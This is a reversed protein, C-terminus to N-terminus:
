MPAVAPTARAALFMAVPVAKGYHWGQMLTIGQERLFGAQAATEVGEAVTDIGFRRGISIMVQVIAADDGDETVDRVFARDIKLEHIPLKKLYLLSSYGTGFDDISFRFGHAALRAMRLAGVDIDDLLVGETMELTLDSARAGHHAVLALLDDAFGPDRFQRPSVNVALALPTGARRQAAALAAAQDLVRRGIALIQGSDEAVPIFDAPSVNGRLPHQWRLLAEAGALRGDPHWKGQLQISFQNRELAQRLDRELAFRQAVLQQMDPQYLRLGGRGAAKAAYMATDAERVLDDATETDNKPFLTIGISAGLRFEVGDIVFPQMMTALLKVGVLEAGAAAAVPEAAVDPLLVMMEDGGMRALTDEARLLASLRQGAAILVRDGVAHGYVDNIRKFHDLDVFLLAGVRGHRRATRLAQQLRDHMVARNPLSTLADTTAATRLAADIRHRETLDLLVGAMTLTRGAADRDIAAGAVLVWRWGGDAGRLRFEASYPIEPHIDHEALSERVRAVDDRHVGPWFRTRVVSDGDGRFRLGAAQATGRPFTVSDDDLDWRWPAIRAAQLALTLLQAQLREETEDVVCSLVASVRGDPTLLPVSSMRLWRRSGGDLRMGIPGLTVPQGSDIVRQVPSHAFPLPRGQADVPDWGLSRPDQGILAPAALGTLRLAADNAQLVRHRLDQVLVGLPLAMLLAQSQQHQLVLDTVDTLVALFGDVQGDAGARPQLDIDAWYTLGSKRQNLRRVQTSEGHTIADSLRDRSAEDSLPSDLLAGPERGLVDAATWGTQGSFGGNVWEIRGQRDLMLVANHTSEAVLALRRMELGQAQLRAEARHQCTAHHRLELLALVQRGLRRLTDRETADLQRPRHDAICLAGVHLGGPLVLPASALFRLGARGVVMPHAAFRPDALTDCVEFVGDGVAGPPCFEWSRPCEAVNLGICSKFWQRDEDVFSILAVPTGCLRSALVAFDDFAAEAPTDLIDLARLAALRRSEELPLTTALDSCHDPM